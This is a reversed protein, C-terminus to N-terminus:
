EIRNRPWGWADRYHSVDHPLSLAAPRQDGESKDTAATEAEDGEATFGGGDGGGGDVGAKDMRVFAADHM